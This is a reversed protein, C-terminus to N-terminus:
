LYQDIGKKCYYIGNEINKKTIEKNVDALSRRAPHDLHYVPSLFKINRMELGIAMMRHSLDDDEAGVGPLEENYGNVLKFDH